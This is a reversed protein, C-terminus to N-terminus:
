VRQPRYRLQLFLGVVALVLGILSPLATQMSAPQMLMSVGIFLGAIPMLVRGIFVRPPQDAPPKRIISGLWFCGVLLEFAGTIIAVYSVM